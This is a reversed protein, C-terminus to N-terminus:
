SAVEHRAAEEALERRRRERRQIEIENMVPVHCIPCDQWGAARLRRAAREMTETRLPEERDLGLWWGLEGFVIEEAWDGLVASRAAAHVARFARARVAPAQEDAELVRLIASRIRGVQQIPVPVGADEPLPAADLIAAV